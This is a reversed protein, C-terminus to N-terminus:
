GTSTPWCHRATSEGKRLSKGIRYQEKSGRPEVRSHQIALRDFGAARSRGARKDGKALLAHAGSQPGTGGPPLRQPGPEPCPSGRCGSDTGCALWHCPSPFQRPICWWSLGGMRGRKVPIETDVFLEGEPGIAGMRPAWPRKGACLAWTVPNIPGSTARPIFPTLDTVLLTPDGTQLLRRQGTGSPPGTRLQSLM